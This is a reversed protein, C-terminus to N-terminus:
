LVHPETEFYQDITAEVLQPITELSPTPEFAYDNLAQRADSFLDVSNQIHEILDQPKTVIGTHHIPTRGKTLFFLPSNFSLFDYAISSHDGIYIETHNLIPYISPFDDIFKINEKDQFAEKLAIASGTYLTNPHFKVMLNYEEPLLNILTYAKSALDPDGWTPAYLLTMTAERKFTTYPSAVRDLARKNNFYYLKRFNGLTTIQHVKELVGHRQLIDKMQKGYIMLHKEAILAGLNDKDSNGHPLWSFLLKKKFQHESLSFIPELLQTPLCSFIVEIDPILTEPLTNLSVLKTELHPYIQNALAEIEVNTFVLPIGLISCFPAIHDLHQLDSGYLLGCARYKFANRSM